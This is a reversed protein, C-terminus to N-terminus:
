KGRYFKHAGITVTHQGHWARVREGPLLFYEAGGTIDQLTGARLESAVRDAIVRCERYLRHRNSATYGYYQNKESVVRDVSIGRRLARNRITSAVARIGQEGESCAEAALVVAVSDEAQAGSAWCGAILLVGGLVACRILVAVSYRQSRYIHANYWDGHGRRLTRYDTDIRM